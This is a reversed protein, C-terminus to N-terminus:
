KVVPYKYTSGWETWSGDYVTLMKRGALEAGLALVCATVGSGCSFILRQEIDSVANFRNVLLEKDIFFGDKILQSFPLSKANPMHGGRVGQRPEPETGFFRAAGRADLVAVSHDDLLSELTDADIVWEPEFAAKYVTIEAAALEGKEIPNNGALWAPFGGDLVAINKHGMAKFMWWVRPASFLGHTDYVVVADDNNIGLESVAKEFLEPSPLMHPFQTSPEAIKKDFDFYRASPIRKESWEQQPKRTSSPMFWSADLIVLNDDTLHEALWDTTVLSSPVLPM